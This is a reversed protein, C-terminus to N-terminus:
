RSMYGVWFAVSMGVYECDGRKGELMCGGM